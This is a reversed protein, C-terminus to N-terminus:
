KLDKIINAFKFDNLTNIDFAEKKNILFGTSNKINFTKKNFKPDKNDIFNKFYSIKSIKLAPSFVYAKPRDQTREFDLYTYGKYKFLNFFIKKNIDIYNFPHEESEYYSVVSTFENNNLLKKYSKIISNKDLFPNTPPLVGIYEPLQNEYDRLHRLAHLVASMTSSDSKSYVKPRLFLIEAGLKISYKAIEKSNTSVIVRGVNSQICSRIKYFLLPFKGIKKLNKNKVRTSGSRAPIIILLSKKNIVM